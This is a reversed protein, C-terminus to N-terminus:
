SHSPIWEPKFHHIDLCGDKGDVSVASFQLTFGLKTLIRQYTDSHVSGTYTINNIPESGDKFTRFMRSILYCDMILGMGKILDDIVSGIYDGFISMDEEVVARTMMPEIKTYIIKPIINLFATNLEDDLIDKIKNYKTPINSIQKTIKTSELVNHISTQFGQITDFQGNKGITKFHQLWEESWIDSLWGDNWFTDIADFYKFLPLNCDRIDVHHFRVYKQYSYKIKPSKTLTNITDVLFSNIHVSQRNFREKTDTSKPDYTTEIFVDIMQDQDSRLLQFFFNYATMSETNDSCLNRKHHSEGLIYVQKNYQQSYYSSFQTLGSVFKGIYSAPEHDLQLSSM